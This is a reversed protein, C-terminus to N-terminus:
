IGVSNVSAVRVFPMAGQRSGLMSHEAHRLLYENLRRAHNEDIQEIIKPQRVSAVAQVPEDLSKVGEGSQALTPFTTSQGADNQVVFIVAFVVSAAISLFGSVKSLPSPSPSTELAVVEPSDLAEDEQDIWDSVSQSVDISLTDLEGEASPENRLADRVLHYRQWQEALEDREVHSLVRQLELENVEDDMLASISEKLREDM